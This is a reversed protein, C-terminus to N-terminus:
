LNSQCGLCSESEITSRLGLSPDIADLLALFKQREGKLWVTKPIDVDVHFHVSPIQTNRAAVGAMEAKGPAEQLGKQETLIIADMEVGLAEAITRLTAEDLQKQKKGEAKQVTRAGYGAKEALEEQTLGLASRLRAIEAGNPIYRSRPM